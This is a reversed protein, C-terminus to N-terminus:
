RALEAFDAICGLRFQESRSDFIVTLEYSDGSNLYTFGETNSCDPASCFGETGFTGLDVFRTETLQLAGDAAFSSHSRSVDGIRWNPHDIDGARLQRYKAAAYRRAATLYQKRPETTKQKRM